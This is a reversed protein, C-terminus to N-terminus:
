VSYRRFIEAEDVFIKPLGGILRSLKKGMESLEIIGKFSSESPTSGGTNPVSHINKLNFSSYVKDGARGHIILIDDSKVHLLKNLANDLQSLQKTKKAYSVVEKFAQNQVFKMGFAPNNQYNSIYM